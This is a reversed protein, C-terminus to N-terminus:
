EEVSSALAQLSPEFADEPDLLREPAPELYATGPNPGILIM